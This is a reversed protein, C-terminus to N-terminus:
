HFTTQQPSKREETISSLRFERLAQQANHIPVLEIYVNSISLLYLGTCHIDM